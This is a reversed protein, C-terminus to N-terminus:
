NQKTHNTDFHWMKYQNIGFEMQLLLRPHRTPTTGKHFTYPDGAFGFGAPGCVTEVSDAGYTEILTEDPISACRQGMFQHHLKRNRHTGRLYVHPGSEADVDTLYFFFKITKYDNIDCHLVQAAALKEAESAPAPFSWAIEGRHYQPERGLYTSAIALLLPDTKLAQFPQFAEHADFYSGLLIPRGLKAELASREHLLFKLDPNRNAYCPTTEAFKLFAALTKSSLQLGQYYGDQELIQSVRDFSNKIFLCDSPLLTSAQANSEPTSTAWERVRQFRALTRMWYFSPDETLCVQNERVTNVVKTALKAVKGIHSEAQHTIVM